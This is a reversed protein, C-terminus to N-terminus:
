ADAMAQLREVALRRVVAIEDDMLLRLLSPQVKECHTVAARQLWDKSKAARAMAASDGPQPILGLATLGIVWDAASLRSADPTAQELTPFSGMEDAIAQLAPQRLEDPFSPNDIAARRVRWYGQTGLAVLLEGPTAADSAKNLLAQLYDEAWRKSFDARSLLHVLTSWGLGPNRVVAFWVARVPDRALEDLAEAPTAPNEAVAKRVSDDADRSLLELTPVPTSRHQALAHRLAEDWWRSCTAAVMGLASASASPNGAIKYQMSPDGALADLLLPPTSPNGAVLFRVRASSDCSLLELTAAGARNSEAVKCRVDETLDKALSGLVEASVVHNMAVELRVEASLDRALLELAAAGARSNAAVKCRVGQDPDTALLDLAVASVAAHEAVTSRVWPDCDHALLDLAAACADARRAVASRVAPSCDKALAGLAQASTAAHLAVAGRVWDSSDEALKDLVHSPVSPSEAVRGRVDADGHGALRELDKGANALSCAISPPIKDAFRVALAEQVAEPTSRNGKVARCVWEDSDNALLDLISTPASPNAAVCRRVEPSRAKALRALVAPTASRFAVAMRVDPSPDRAMADRVAASTSRNSAVMERVEDDQDRALAQLCEPPSNDDSAVSYRVYPDPSNALLTLVQPPTRANGALLTGVRSDSDVAMEAWRAIPAQELTTYDAFGGTDRDIWGLASWWVSALLPWPRAQGHRMRRAMEVAVETRDVSGHAGQLKDEQRAHDAAKAAQTVRAQGAVLVHPDTTLVDILNAPTLRNRAVAMREAWLTSKLRRALDQPTALRHCLGRLRLAPWPSRCAQEAHDDAIWLVRDEVIGLLHGLRSNAPDHLLLECEAQHMAVLEDLGTRIPLPQPADPSLRKAMATLEIRWLRASAELRLDSPCELKLTVARLLPAGAAAVLATFAARRVDAPASANEAVARLTGVDARKILTPFVDHPMSPNGAVAKRVAPETATALARLESQPTAPDSAASLGPPRAALAEGLSTTLGDGLLHGDVLQQLSEIPAAPHRVISGLLAIATWYGEKRAIPLMADLTHRPTSPNSALLRALYWSKDAVFMSALADAPTAPNVAVRERVDWDDDVSLVRLLDAPTAASRALVLRVARERDGALEEFLGNAIPGPTSPDAAVQLRASANPDAALVQLRRPLLAPLCSAMSLGMVQLRNGLSLWPWQSKDIRQGKWASRAQSATLWGLSAKVADEFARDLDVDPRSGGLAVHAAAAEAAPGGERVLRQLLDAPAQSNMAVALKEQEDGHACAWAMFSRPCDAVKLINKLVGKGLRTLLDPEELLLWDFAANRFFDYPFQPALRLLTEKDAGPNLVVAKRTVKDSSHSLQELLKATAHPHRALLRDVLEGQGALSDLREAPTEPRRALAAM